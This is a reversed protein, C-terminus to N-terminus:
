FEEIKIQDCIKWAFRLGDIKSVIYSLAIKKFIREFIKIIINKSSNFNKTSTVESTLCPWVNFNYNNM